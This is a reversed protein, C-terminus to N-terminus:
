QKTSEEVLIKTGRYGKDGGFSDSSVIKWDHEVFWEAVHPLRSEVVVISKGAEKAWKEAHQVFIDLYLYVTSEDMKVVDSLRLNSFVMLRDLKTMECKFVVYAASGPQTSKFTIMARLAPIGPHKDPFVVPTPLARLEMKGNSRLEQALKYPVPQFMNM